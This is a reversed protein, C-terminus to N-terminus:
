YWYSTHIKHHDIAILAALDNFLAERKIAVLLEQGLYSMFIFAQLNLLSRPIYM